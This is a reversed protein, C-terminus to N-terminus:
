LIESRCNQLNTWKTLNISVFHLNVKEKTDTRFIIKRVSQVKSKRHLRTGQGTAAVKSEFQGRPKQLGFTAKVSGGKAAEGGPM